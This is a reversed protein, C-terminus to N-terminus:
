RSSQSHHILSILKNKEHHPLHSYIHLIKSVLIKQEDKESPIKWDFELFHPEVKGESFKILTKLAETLALIQDPRSKDKKAEAIRMEVAHLKKDEIIFAQDPNEGIVAANRLNIDVDM